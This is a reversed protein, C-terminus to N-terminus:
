KRPIFKILIPEVPRMVLDAIVRPRAGKVKPELRFNRIIECFASKLEQMAFRQGICNRPGASFPVYSFPHKLESGPLFREPKFAEADPFLDERHHLEYIHMDITTGAKVLLGDLVFDEDIQRGIFPVSPYLRLIEKIVAEMYKMDALDSMTPSRDTNNLVSQLEWYIRDQVDEHDALLMLGFTIAIATTDHGEFMFTNVEDRIGEIDIEGKGEAELLLDLMALRRKTGVDTDASVEAIKNQKFQAKRDKIVNDAFSRVTDLIKYFQKGTATNKFVFETWMWIKTVRILILLGIHVIADKYAVTAESQDNDLKTGMATECITFLTFDSIIPVIDVAAGKKEKLLSVLERNKEDMVTLFNKLINFHFAPTLIKRRKHWHAGTSLLLGNGLWDKLFEYVLSKSINKSHSMVVEIDSPRIIHLVRHKM